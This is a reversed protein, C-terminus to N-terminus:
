ENGHAAEQLIRKLQERARWLNTNVSAVAIGLHAAIAKGSLGRMALKLTNGLGPPLHDIAALLSEQREEATPELLPRGYTADAQLQLFERLTRLAAEQRRKAQWSKPILNKIVTRRYWEPNAIPARRQMELYELWAQQEFDRADQPLVDRFMYRLKRSQARIQADELLSERTPKKSV